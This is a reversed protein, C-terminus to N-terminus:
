SPGDTSHCMKLGPMKLKCGNVFQCGCVCFVKNDFMLWDAAVSITKIETLSAKNNRIQYRSIQDNISQFTMNKWICCGLVLLNQYYCSIICYQADWLQNYMNCWWKESGNILLNSSILLLQYPDNVEILTPKTGSGQDPKQSTLLNFTMNKIAVVATWCTTQFLVSTCEASSTCSLTM